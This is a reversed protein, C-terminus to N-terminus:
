QFSKFFGRLPSVMWPGLNQSSEVWDWEIVPEHWNPGYEISLVDEYNCPALLKYGFLVVSCLEYPPYFLKAWQGRTPFHLSTTFHTGNHYVFFLDIKWNDSHNMLTFSYEISNHARGFQFLLEISHKPSHESFEKTLETEGIKKAYKAWTGFDSDETYPIVNCQRAWGLLSGAKLWFEMRMERLLGKLGLMSCRFYEVVSPEEKINYKNLWQDNREPPCHLYRSTFLQSLFHSIDDPILIFIDSLYILKLKFPDFIQEYKGFYNLSMIQTHNINNTKLASGIWLFNEIRFFVVLHINLVTENSKKQYFIHHPIFTQNSKNYIGNNGTIKFIEIFNKPMMLNSLEDSFIGVTLWHNWKFDFPLNYRWMMEDWEYIADTQFKQFNKSLFIQKLFYPEILFLSSLNHKFDHRLLDLYQKQLVYIAKSQILINIILILITIIVNHAFM